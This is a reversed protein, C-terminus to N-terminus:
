KVMVMKLCIKNVFRTCKNSINLLNHWLSYVLHILWSKVNIEVSIFRTLSLSLSLPICHIQDLISYRCLPNHTTSIQTALVPAHYAHELSLFYAAFNPGLLSSSIFGALKQLTDGTRLFLSLSLPSISAPLSLISHVPEPLPIPAIALSDGHM